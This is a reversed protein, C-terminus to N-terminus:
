RHNRLTILPRGVLRRLDGSDILYEGAAIARDVNARREAAVESHGAGLLHAKFGDVSLQVYPINEGAQRSLEVALEPMTFPDDSGLEYVASEHGTTTLVTAAADALDVLSAASIRGDGAAGVITGQERWGPIQRAFPLVGNRLVVHPAARAPLQETAYHDAHWWKYRRPCLQTYGHSSAVAAANTV